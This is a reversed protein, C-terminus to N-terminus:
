LKIRELVQQAAWGNKLNHRFTKKDDRWVHDSEFIDEAHVKNDVFVKYRFSYYKDDVRIAWVQISINTQLFGM